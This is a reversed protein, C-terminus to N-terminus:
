DKWRKPEITAFRKLHRDIEENIDEVTIKVEDKEVDIDKFIKMLKLLLISMM